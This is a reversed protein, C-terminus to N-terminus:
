TQFVQSPDGGAEGAALLVCALMRGFRNFHISKLTFKFKPFASANL